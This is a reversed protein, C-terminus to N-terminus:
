TKRGNETSNLYPTQSPWELIDNTTKTSKFKPNPDNGHQFTFMRKSKLQRVSAQSKKKRLISPDGWVWSFLLLGSCSTAVVDKISLTDQKAAFM